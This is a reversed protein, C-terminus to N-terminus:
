QKQLKSSTVSQAFGIIVYDRSNDYPFVHYRIIGFVRTHGRRRNYKYSCSRADLYSLHYYLKDREHVHRTYTYIDTYRM